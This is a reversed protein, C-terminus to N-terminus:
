VEVLQKTLENYRQMREKRLREKNRYYFDRQHKRHMERNEEASRNLKKRGM